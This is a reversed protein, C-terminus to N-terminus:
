SCKYGKARWRASGVEGFNSSETFSHAYPTNQILPPENNSSPHFIKITKCREWQFVFFYQLARTPAGM